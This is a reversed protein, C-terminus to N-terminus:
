EDYKTVAENILSQPITVGMREAAATNISLSIVEGKEVEIGSADGGAELVRALM